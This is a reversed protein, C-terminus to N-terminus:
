SQTLCKKVELGKELLLHLEDPSQLEDERCILLQQNNGEIYWGKNEAFYQRVEKKFLRSIAKEDEGDLIYQGSFEPNSDFVLQEDPRKRGSRMKPILRFQPLQWAKNELVLITQDDIQNKTYTGRAIFTESYRFQYDFMTFDAGETKGSFVHRPKQGPGKNGLLFNNMAERGTKFEDDSDYDWGYSAAAIKLNAKRKNKRMVSFVIIAICLAIVIALEIM